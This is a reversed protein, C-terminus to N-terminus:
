CQQELAPEILSVEINFDVSVISIASQLYRGLVDAMYESLHSRILQGTLSHAYQSM